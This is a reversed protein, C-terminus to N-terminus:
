TTEGMRQEMLADYREATYITFEAYDEDRRIIDLMAIKRGSFIHEQGEWTRAVLYFKDEVEIKGLDRKALFWFTFIGLLAVGSVVLETTTM